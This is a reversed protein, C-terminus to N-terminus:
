RIWLSMPSKFTKKHRRATITNRVERDITKFTVETTTYGNLHLASYRQRWVNYITAQTVLIRLTSPATPSSQRTWSLLEGWTFFLQHHPQLRAFI